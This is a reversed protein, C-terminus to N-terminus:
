AESVLGLEMNPSALFAEPLLGRTGCKAENRGKNALM